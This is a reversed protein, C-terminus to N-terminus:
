SAAETSPGSVKLTIPLTMKDDLPTERGMNTLLASVITNAGGPYTVKWNKAARTEMITKLAGYVTLAPDFELTGSVEGGDILAGIFRRYGDSHGHNTVDVTDMSLENATVDYLGGVATYTGPTSSEYALVMGLGIKAAM